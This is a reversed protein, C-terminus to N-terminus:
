VIVPVSWFQWYKKKSHPNTNVKICFFIVSLSHTSLEICLLKWKSTTEGMMGRGGRGLGRGVCMEWKKQVSVVFFLSQKKNNRKPTLPFMRTENQKVSFRSSDFNTEVIDTQSEPNCFTHSPPRWLRKTAECTNQPGKQTKAGSCALLKQGGGEKTFDPRGFINCSIDFCHKRNSM